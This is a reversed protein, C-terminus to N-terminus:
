TKRKILPHQQDGRCMTCHCMSEPASLAEALQRKVRELERAQDRVSLEAKDREATREQLSKALKIRELGQSQILAAAEVGVEGMTKLSSLILDRKM